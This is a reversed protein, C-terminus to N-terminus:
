RPMSVRTLMPNRARYEWADMGHVQKFAPQGTRVSYGLQGWTRWQVDSCMQLARDRQSASADARLGRSDPTLASREPEVETFVGVSALARMLRYLVQHGSGTAIALEGSTKPGKSLLDAIGLDAAVGIAQAIWHGSMLFQRQFGSVGSNAM